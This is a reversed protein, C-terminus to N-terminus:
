ANSYFHEGQHFHHIERSSNFAAHYLREFRRISEVQWSDQITQYL